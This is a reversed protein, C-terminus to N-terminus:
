AVKARELAEKGKATLMEPPLQRLNYLFVYYCSCYVLEGPAEIDDTYGDKSPKVLGAKQAWSDKILFVAKRDSWAKHQPRAKYHADSTGRDVWRGAIAGGDKALIDNLSALMKHGQDIHVRRTEFPLSALAKRVDDKTERKDVNESGGAPISTAWGSFRRITKEIAEARNLKILQSSALIRRDLEARLRPAVQQLTFRGVGPHYKAMGGREVMRRYISGFTARLQQEMVHPPVMSREAALRIEKVWYILREESVFGHETFYRIADTVTEYFGKRSREVM